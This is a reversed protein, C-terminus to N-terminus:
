LGCNWWRIQYQRKGEPSEGSEILTYFDICDCFLTQCGAWGRQDVHAEIMSRAVAEPNSASPKYKRVMEVLGDETFPV